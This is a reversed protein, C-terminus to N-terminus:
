FTQGHRARRRGCPVMKKGPFLTESCAELPSSPPFNRNWTMGPLSDHKNKSSFSFSDRTNGSPIIQSLIGFLLQLTLSTSLQVWGDLFFDAARLRWVFSSPLNSQLLALLEHFKFRVPSVPPFFPLQNFAATTSRWSVCVTLRLFCWCSTAAAVQRRNISVDDRTHCNGESSFLKFFFFFCASGMLYLDFNTPCGSPNFSPSWFSFDLHSSARAQVTATQHWRAWGRWILIFRERHPINGLVKLNRLRMFHFPM